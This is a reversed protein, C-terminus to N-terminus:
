CSATKNISSPYIEPNLIIEDSFVKLSNPLLYDDSDIFMVYEGTAYELGTNRAVSCGRTAEHQLFIFDINDYPKIVEKAISMSNDPSCDDVLICELHYAIGIGEQTAVSKLCREIYHEAKYIPIIISISIIASKRM